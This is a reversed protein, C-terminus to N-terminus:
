NGRGRGRDRMDLHFDQIRKQLGAIVYLCKSIRDSKGFHFCKFRVVSVSMNVRTKNVGM